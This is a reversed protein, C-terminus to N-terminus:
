SQGQFGSFVCRLVRQGDIYLEACVPAWTKEALWVQKETGERVYRLVTAPEGNVQEGWVEDPSSARLDYLLYPVADAPSFGPTEPAPADLATGDYELTMQLRNDGSITESVGSLDEPATLTLRDSSTKNYEYDAEYELTSQGM